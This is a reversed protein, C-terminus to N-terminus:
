MSKRSRETRRLHYTHDKDMKLFDEISPCKLNIKLRYQELVFTPHNVCACGQPRLGSISKLWTGGMLMSM